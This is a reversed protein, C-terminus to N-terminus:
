EGVLEFVAGGGGGGCCGKNQRKSLFWEKDTIDVHTVSGAGNFVYERGSPTDRAVFKVDLMLRIPIGSTDPVVREVVRLNHEQVKGTRAM